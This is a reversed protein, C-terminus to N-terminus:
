TRPHVVIHRHQPACIAVFHRGVRVRVADSESNDAATLTRAWSAGGSTERESVGSPYARAVLNSTRRSGIRPAAILRMPGHPRASRCRLSWRLASTPAMTLWCSEVLAAAVM